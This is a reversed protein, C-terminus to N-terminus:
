KNAQTQYALKIQPWFLNLIAIATCAFAVYTASDLTENFVLFAIISAIVPEILKGCTMVALNMSSMCHSFLFHGLLTPLAVLGLVSIWSIAKYGEIFNSQTYLTATLFCIACVSYQLSAFNLNSVHRRAKKTTIVYIAYLLATIIASANGLNNESSYTLQDKTLLFIGTFAIFFSILMRPTIKEKFAYINILATWIPNTAFLIMMLSVLTHKAAYKYTWLHLFFFFGSLIIWKLSHSNQLIKQKKYFKQFILLVSAAIFLRWFGLVEPPMGNLKAWNAATSLCILALFYLLLHPM